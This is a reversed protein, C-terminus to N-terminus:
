VTLPFFNHPLLARAIHTALVHPFLRLAIWLSAATIADLVQTATLMVTPTLAGVCAQISLCCILIAATM